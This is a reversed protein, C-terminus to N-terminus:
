TQVPPQRERIADLVLALVAAGIITPVLGVGALTAALAAGFIAADRATALTRKALRLVTLVLIASAAASIAPLGAQLPTPSNPDFVLVTLATILIAGPTIVGIAALASGRVGDLSFGMLVTLNVFTAGPLIQSVGFAHAFDRESVWGRAQVLTAHLYAFRAGGFSTCGVVFFERFSRAVSPAIM